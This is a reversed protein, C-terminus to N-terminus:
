RCSRRWFYVWFQNSQEKVEKHDHLYTPPHVPPWAPPHVNPCTPLCIPTNTPHHTSLCVSTRVSMCAPRSNPPRIYVCQHAFWCSSPRFSMHISPGMSLGVLPHVSLHISSRILPYLFPSIFQKAPLLWTPSAPLHVDPPSVPTLTCAPRCTLLSSPPISSSRIPLWANAVAPSHALLSAHQYLTLCAPM